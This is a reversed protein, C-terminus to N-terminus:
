KGEELMERAKQSWLGEVDLELYRKLLVKSEKVFNLEQYILALNFIAEKEDPNIAICWHYEQMAEQVQHNELYAHALALHADYLKPDKKLANQYEEIEHEVEGKMFFLIGMYFNALANDPDVVELQALVIFADETKEQQILQVARKLLTQPDESEQIKLIEDSAFAPYGILIWGFFLFLIFRHMVM